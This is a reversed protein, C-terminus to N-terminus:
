LYRIFLTTARCCRTLAMGAQIQRDHTGCVFAAYRKGCFACGFVLRTVSPEPCRVNRVYAACPPSANLMDDTITDAQQETVAM